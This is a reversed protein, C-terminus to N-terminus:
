TFEEQSDIQGQRGSRTAAIIGPSAGSVTFLSHAVM